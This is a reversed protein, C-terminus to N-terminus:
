AAKRIRSTLPTCRWHHSPTEATHLDMRNRGYVSHRKVSRIISIEIQRRDATYATHAAQVATQPRNAPIAAARISVPFRAPASNRGCTAPLPGAQRVATQIPSSRSSKTNRKSKYSFAATCEDIQSLPEAAKLSKPSRKEASM